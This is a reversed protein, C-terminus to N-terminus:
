ASPSPWVSAWTGLPDLSPAPSARTDPFPEHSQAWSLGPACDEPHCCIRSPLGCAAREEQTQARPRPGGAEPGCGCGDTAAREGAAPARSPLDWPSSKCALSHGSSWCPVCVSSGVELVGCTDCCLAMSPKLSGCAWSAGGGGDSRLLDTGRDPTLKAWQHHPPSSNLWSLVGLVGPGLFWANVTGPPRTCPSPCGQPSSSPRNQWSGSHLPPFQGRFAGSHGPPLCPCSTASRLVEWAGEM